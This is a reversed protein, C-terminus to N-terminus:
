LCVCLQLSACLSDLMESNVGRQKLIEVFHATLEETDKYYSHTAAQIEDFRRMVSGNLAELKAKRKEMESSYVEFLEYLTSENMGKKTSTEYLHRTTRSRTEGDEPAVVRSHIQSPGEEVGRTRCRPPCALPNSMRRPAPASTAESLVSHSASSAILDDIEFSKTLHIGHKKTYLDSEAQM